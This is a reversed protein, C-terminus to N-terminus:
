YINREHERSSSAQDLRATRTEARATRHQQVQAKANKQFRLKQQWPKCQAAAHVNTAHLPCFPTFALTFHGQESRLFLLDDRVFGGSGGTKVPKYSVHGGAPAVTRVFAKPCQLLKGTM